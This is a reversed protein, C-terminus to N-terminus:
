LARRKLHVTERAPPEYDEPWYDTVHCILGATVKFLSIGTSIENGVFFDIICIGEDHECILSRIRATWNGPWTRFMELYGEGTDIYERTQPVEYRLHPDLLQSFRVWDRTNGRDWHAQITERTSTNM